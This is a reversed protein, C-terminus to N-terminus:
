YIRELISDLISKREYNPGYDEQQIFAPPPMSDLFDQFITMFFVLFMTLLMLVMAVPNEKDREPLIDPIQKRAEIYKHYFEGANECSFVLYKKVKRTRISIVGFIGVACRLKIVDELPFNFTKKGRKLIIAKDTLYIKDNLYSLTVKLGLILMAILFTSLLITTLFRLMTDCLCSDLLPIFFLIAYFAIIGMLSFYCKLNKKGEILINDEM